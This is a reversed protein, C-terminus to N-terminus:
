AARKKRLMRLTSAGFPVLLLAGAIMTTPEPVAVLSVNDLDIVNDTGFTTAMFSIVAPTGSALFVFGAHQWHNNFGPDDPLSVNGTFTWIPPVGNVTVQIQPNPSTGTYARSSGVDFSLLYYQGPLTNVTQQLAIGGHPQLTDGAYGTLDPFRNGEAAHFAWPNDQREWVIDGQFSPGGGVVAWGTIDTAGNYLKMVGPTGSVNPSFNGNEFSGNIILNAQATIACVSCLAVIASKWAPRM